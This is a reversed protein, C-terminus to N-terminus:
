NGLVSDNPSIKGDAWVEDPLYEGLKVFDQPPNLPVQLPSCTSKDGTFEYKYAAKAPLITYARKKNDKFDVWLGYPTYNLAVQKLQVNITCEADEYLSGNTAVSPFTIFFIPMCRDVGNWPAWNCPEKRLTDYFGGLPYNGGDVQVSYPVIRSQQCNLFFLSVMLVM